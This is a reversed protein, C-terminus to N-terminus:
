NYLKLSKLSFFDFIKSFHLEKSTSVIAGKSWRSSICKDLLQLRNCSNKKRKTKFGATAITPDRRDGPWHTECTGQGEM